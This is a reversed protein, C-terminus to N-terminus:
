RYRDPDLAAPTWQRLFHLVKARDYGQGAELLASDQTHLRQGQSDLLVFVPFGFRQPYGLDALIAENPNEPSYNLHYLVYNAQLLSDIEADEKCFRHFRICWSCWNGGVQLLLHKGAAQAEALHAAMEARADAQPHYLTNGASQAPLLAPLLCLCVWGLLRFGQPARM